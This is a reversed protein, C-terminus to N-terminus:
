QKLRILLFLLFLAGQVEELPKRIEFSLWSGKAFQTPLFVYGQEHVRQLFAHGYAIQQMLIEFCVPEALIIKWSNHDYFVYKVVNFSTRWKSKRMKLIWLVIYPIPMGKSFNM